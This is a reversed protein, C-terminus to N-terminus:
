GNSGEKDIKDMIERREKTSYQNMMERKTAQPIKSPDFGQSALMKEHYSAFSRRGGRKQEQKAMTSAAAKELVKVEEAVKREREAAKYKEVAEEKITLPERREKFESVATELQEVQERGETLKQYNEITPALKFRKEKLENLRKATPIVESEFKDATEKTFVEETRGRNTALAIEREINAAKAVAEGETQITRLERKVKAKEQIAPNTQILFGALSIGQNINAQISM